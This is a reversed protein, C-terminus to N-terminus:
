NNNNTLCRASVEAWWTGNSQQTDFVLKISNQFCDFNTENLNVIAANEAASSTAAVAVGYGTYISGALAPTATGAILLAASAAATVLGSILLRRM